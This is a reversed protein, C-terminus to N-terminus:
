LGNELRELNEIRYATHPHSAKMKESLKMQTDMSIKQFVYLCSIMEKGYGIEYTFNDAEIENKRSNIALIIESLNIFVLISLDVGLRLIYTFLSFFWAIVSFHSIINSITQVIFFTGRFAFVIVSFFLNGINSLLLAKTHGYKIHGLEHAIVGKLEDASLTEIAGRTIAV